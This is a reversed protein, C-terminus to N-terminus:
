VGLAGVVVANRLLANEAEGGRGCFRCGAFGIHQHRQAGGRAADFGGFKREIGM